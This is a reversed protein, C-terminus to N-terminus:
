KPISSSRSSSRPYEQPIGPLPGDNKYAHSGEALDVLLDLTQALYTGLEPVREGIFVVRLGTLLNAADVRLEVPQPVLVAGEARPHPEAIALLDDGPGTDLFTQLPGGLSRM